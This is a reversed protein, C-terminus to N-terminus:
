EIRGWSGEAKEEIIKLMNHATMDLGLPTVSVMRALLAEKDTPYGRRGKCLFSEYVGDPYAEEVCRLSQVTFVAGRVQSLPIDPVNINLVFPIRENQKLLLDAWRFAFEAATGYHSPNRAEISVAIAPIGLSSAELAAAVTGSYLMDIGVNAGANIGSLLVDVKERGLMDVAALVCDTPTGDLAYYSCEKEKRLYRPKEQRHQPLTISHSCGSRETTPAVVVVAGLRTMKKALTRIGESDVGDDNTLLIRRKMM